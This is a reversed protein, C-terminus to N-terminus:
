LKEKVTGNLTTYELVSVGYARIAEACVMCPKAIAPNGQNDYREVVLRYPKNDGCRILVRVEAHLYIKDDLGVKEAFYKMLPHSKKYDNVAQAILRGQKDYAKATIFYKKRM